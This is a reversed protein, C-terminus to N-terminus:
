YRHPGHPGDDPWEGQELAPREEEQENATKEVMSRGWLLYHFGGFGVLLVFIVVAHIVFPGMIAFFFLFFGAAALTALLVTLFTERARSRPQEEPM